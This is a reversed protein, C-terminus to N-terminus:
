FTYYNFFYNLAATQLIFRSMLWLILKLVLIVRRQHAFTEPVKAPIEAEGYGRKWEGERIELVVSSAKLTVNVSLVAM